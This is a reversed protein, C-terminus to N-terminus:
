IIANRIGRNLKVSLNKEPLFDGEAHPPSFKWIRIYDNGEDM